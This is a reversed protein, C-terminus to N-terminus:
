ARQFCLCTQFIECHVGLTRMRPTYILPTLNLIKYDYEPFVANWSQIPSTCPEFYENTELLNGNLV